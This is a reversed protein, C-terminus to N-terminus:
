MGILVGVSVGIVNNKIDDGIGENLNKLGYSYDVQGFVHLPGLGVQMGIGFMMGYDSKSINSVDFDVEGDVNVGAVVGETQGNLAYAGYVGGLAYLPGLKIKALIPIELYNYVTQSNNDDDTDYKFGKPSYNLGFRLKLLPIIDKDMFAGLHFNTLFKENDLNIGDTKAFNMGARVGIQANSVVVFSLSFIAVFLIKKM